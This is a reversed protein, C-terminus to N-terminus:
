GFPDDIELMDLADLTDTLTRSRPGHLSKEDRKDPTLDSELQYFVQNDDVFSRLYGQSVLESITRDFEAQTPPPLIALAAENLQAYSIETAPLIVEIIVRQNAPLEALRQVRQSPATEVDLSDTSTAM